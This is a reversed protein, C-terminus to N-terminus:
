RGSALVADIAQTLEHLQFPKQLVLSIKLESLTDTSVEDAYGSTLLAPLHPNLTRIQRILEIGSMSPMTLDTVLIDFAQPDKQFTEWASQPNNFISAQHGARKFLSTVLRTIAQEDDVFLIRKVNMPLNPSSKSTSPTSLTPPSPSANSPTDCIPFFLEFTTGVHVQSQVRIAGNHSEVVGQVVALGLGSGKDREKTTFFPEFLQGRISEPIGVGTDSVSLLAYEGAPLDPSNPQNLPLTCTEVAIGLVGGPKEMAQDANKMLNLIVRHLQSSDGLIWVPQDLKQHFHIQNKTSHKYLNLVELALDRLNIPKKATPTRSHRGGFIRIQDILDRARLGAKLIELNNSRQECDAPLLRDMEESNGIIGGLINNFDHAVGAALRGLAENKRAEALQTELQRRQVEAQKRQTIDRVVVLQHRTNTRGFFPVLNAELVMETQKETSLIMWEASLSKGTEASRYFSFLFDDQFKRDTAFALQLFDEVTIGILDTEVLENNFRTIWQRAAPNTTRLLFGFNPEWTFLMLADATNDYIMGLLSRQERLQAETRRISKRENSERIARSVAPVFRILNNKMLYDSAGAKISEVAVEEGVTGSILIFPTEAEERLTIALADMGSFRPLSFDSIVIDWNGRHLAARLGDATQVQEYTVQYGGLRLHDCLLGVDDESDEVFLVRIEKTV